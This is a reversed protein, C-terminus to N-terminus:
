SRRVLATRRPIAGRRLEFVWEMDFGVPRYFSAGTLDISYRPICFCSVSGKLGALADNAEDACTIYWRAPEIPKKKPEEGASDTSKEPQAYALAFEPDKYTYSPLNPDAVLKKTRSTKARGSRHSASKLKPEKDPQPEVTASNADELVGRPTESSPSRSKSRSIGKRVRGSGASGDNAPAAKFSKSSKEVRPPQPGLSTASFKQLVPAKPM